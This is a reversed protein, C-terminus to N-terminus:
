STLRSRRWPAPGSTERFRTALRPYANCLATLRPDVARAAQYRAVDEKPCVIRVGKEWLQSEVRRITVTNECQHAVLLSLKAQLSAAAEVVPGTEIDGAVAARQQFIQLRM